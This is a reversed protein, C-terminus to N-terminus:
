QKEAESMLDPEVTYNRMFRLDGLEKYRKSCNREKVKGNSLLVV